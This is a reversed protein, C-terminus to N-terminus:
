AHFRVSLSGVDPAKSVGVACRLITEPRCGSSINRSVSTEEQKRRIPLILQTFSNVLFMMSAVDKDNLQPLNAVAMQRLFFYISAGGFVAFKLCIGCMGKGNKM